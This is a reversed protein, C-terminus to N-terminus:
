ILFSFHPILFTFSFHLFAWRLAKGCLSRLHEGGMYRSFTCPPLREGGRLPLPLPPTQIKKEATHHAAFDSVTETFVSVTKRFDSVTKSRRLGDQTPSAYRMYVRVRMGTCTGTGICIGTCERARACATCGHTCERAPMYQQANAPLPSPVIFTRFAEKVASRITICDTASHQSPSPEKKNRVTLSVSGM